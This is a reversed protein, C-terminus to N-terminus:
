YTNKIFSIILDLLFATILTTFTYELFNKGLKLTTYLWYGVILFLCFLILLEINKLAMFGGVNIKNILFIIKKYYNSIKDKIFSIFYFERKEYFLQTIFKFMFM